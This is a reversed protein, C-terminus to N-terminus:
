LVLVVLMAMIVVLVVLMKIIVLEKILVMVMAKEAGKKVELNEMTLISTVDVKIWNSVVLKLFVTDPLADQM